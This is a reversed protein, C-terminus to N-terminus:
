KGPKFSIGSTDTAPATASPAPAPQTALLATARQSWPGNAEIRSVQDVLKRVEDPKGAAAALSALHYAAEARVGALLTTDASIAKLAAEGAAQDAGNLQSIAAGLKARGLLAENTLSGAAKTYATAAGAYDANTFKDDAVKLWALGALPHGSNADAFATLRAPQDSLKAFEAQVDAEHSATYASWGERAVIAVLAVIALGLIFTRNKEWFAQFTVEFGPETVPAAPDASAPSQKAPPLQSMSGRLNLPAM